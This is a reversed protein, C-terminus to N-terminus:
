RGGHARRFESVVPSDAWGPPFEDWDDWRLGASALLEDDLEILRAPEFYGKENGVDARYLHRPLECGLLGLTGAVASTGSRHM